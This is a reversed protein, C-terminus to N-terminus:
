LDGRPGKHIPPSLLEKPHGIDAVVLEGLYDRAGSALFGRKPLGMTVTVDARVAAGRPRGTDADLGSPVDVAIVPHLSRDLANVQEILERAPGALDRNLGTGFLADVVVARPQPHWAGGPVIVRGGALKAVVRGDGGNRGPGCLVDVPRDPWRRSIERAVAGGAREMLAGEPVRFKFIAQRDIEMM